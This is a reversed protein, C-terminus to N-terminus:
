LTEMLEDFWEQAEEMTDFEKRYTEKNTDVEVTIKITRVHEM